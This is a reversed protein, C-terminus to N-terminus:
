ESKPATGLGLITYILCSSIVATGLLVAGLIPLVWGFSLGPYVFYAAILAFGILIRLIRDTKGVNKKFM